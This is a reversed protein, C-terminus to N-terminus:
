QGARWGGRNRVYTWDIAQTRCPQRVPSTDDIFIWWDHHSWQSRREVSRSPWCQETSAPSWFGASTDSSM